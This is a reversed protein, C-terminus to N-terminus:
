LCFALKHLKASSRTNSIAFLDAYRLEEFSSISDKVSKKDAGQPISNENKVSEKKMLVVNIEYM